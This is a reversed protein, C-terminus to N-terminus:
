ANLIQNSDICDFEGFGFVSIWTFQGRSDTWAIHKGIRRLGCWIGTQEGTWDEPFVVDFLVKDLLSKIENM